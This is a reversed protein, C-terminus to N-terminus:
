ILRGYFRRRGYACLQLGTAALRLRLNDLAAERIRCPAARRAKIKGGGPEGDSCVFRPGNALPISVRGNKVGILEGNKKGFTFQFSGSTATFTKKDFMPTDGTRRVLRQTVKKAAAIRWEWTFLPHDNKDIATLELVDADRRNKPLDLQLRGKARAPIDPGQFEGRFLTRSGAAADAPNRFMALRWQFRCQNLNTFDYRNEVPIEGTFDKPLDWNSDIYVPSWIERITFFSAEKQHFPGLIGDPAHNGDTDIRGNQDTRLVGEDAFVWLFMGGTLPNGWMLNWYDELGAGLGGDYLGHLYETPMFIHGAKMKNETSPYSEYHDTDVGGHLEWPHLVRRHQPDWKGFEDDLETNWGGENGNDWFLVAAHNVDRKLMEWVLREGTPTDYPPKQWGTLEDLVYMGLEDCLDLFYADPPYHSMRVANMNMEKMTLIDDRCQRRNLARGTTPWFSHRDCGKLVVPRGNLFLGQGDRVEFTRFGFREQVTHIPTEDRLLTAQVTYLNPTEASWNKQGSVMTNLTVVTDSGIAAFFSEGLPQGSRDYIKAQLRDANQIGGLHVTLSFDGDAKADVATWDIYEQPVAKLFVPRFIGGFVWFDSQREAFNISKNASKKHVDAEIRNEGPHLLNTIEYEFRYFGGQHMPGASVGNIRVETDTMAGDFVIFIRKGAWRDPIDFTTKYRGTEDAKNKDHGYNYDGFGQLEWNSPVSIKAWENARRGGTVMFDWDVASDTGRGSLFVTETEVGPAALVTTGVLLLFCFFKNM